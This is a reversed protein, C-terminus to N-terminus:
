RSSNNRCPAASRGAASKWGQRGVENRTLTGTKDTCLVDMAGLNQPRCACQRLSAPGPGPPLGPLPWLACCAAGGQQSLHACSIGNCFSAAPELYRSHLILTLRLRPSGSGAPSPSSASRMFRVALPSHWHGVYPRSTCVFGCGAPSGLWAGRHCRSWGSRSSRHPPKHFCFDGLFAQKSAGGSCSPASQEM